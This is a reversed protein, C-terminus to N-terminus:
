SKPIYVGVGTALYGGDTPLRGPLKYRGGGEGEAPSQGVPSM